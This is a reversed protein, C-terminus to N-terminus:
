VEYYITFFDKGERDIGGSIHGLIKTNIKRYLLNFTEIPISYHQCIQCLFPYIERIELNAKYFNLDFSIRSNNEERVELYVLSSDNIMKNAVYNIINEIIQLTNLHHHEYIRSLKHLIMKVSLLPYCIYRSVVGQTNDLPNWKFGLLSVVPELKNSKHHLENTIKDWFDLYVKYYCGNENGEFGFGVMNADSLNDKYVALLQDPIDMQKCINLFTQETQTKKDIGFTFRNQLLKKHSIKFSAEFSLERNINELLHFILNAKEDIIKQQM